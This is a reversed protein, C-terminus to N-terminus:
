ASPSRKIYNQKNKIYQSTSDVFCPQERVPQPAASKRSHRLRTIKGEKVIFNSLHPKNSGLEQCSGQFYRVRM